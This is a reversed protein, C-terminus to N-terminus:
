RVLHIVDFSILKRLFETLSHSQFRASNLLAIATKGDKVLKRFAFLIELSGLRATIARDALCAAPFSILVFVGQMDYVHAFYSVSEQNYLLPIINLFIVLTLRVSVFGCRVIEKRKM